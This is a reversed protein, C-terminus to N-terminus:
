TQWDVWRGHFDARALEARKPAHPWLRVHLAAGDRRTRYGRDPTRRHPMLREMFPSGLLACSKGQSRFAGRIRAETGTM